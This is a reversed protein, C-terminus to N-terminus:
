LEDNATVPDLNRRTQNNRMDLTRHTLVCDDLSDVLAAGGQDSHVENVVNAAELKNTSETQKQQAM